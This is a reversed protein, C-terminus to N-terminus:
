KVRRVLIKLAHSKKYYEHLSKNDSYSYYYDYYHPVLCTKLFSYDSHVDKLTLFNFFWLLTKENATPELCQLCFTDKKNLYGNLLVTESTKFNRPKMHAIEKGTSNSSNATINNKNTLEKKIRNQEAIYEFRNDDQYAPVSPIEIFDDSVSLPIYYIFFLYSFQQCLTFLSCSEYNSPLEDDSDFIDELNNCEKVFKKM